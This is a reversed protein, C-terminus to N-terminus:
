CNVRAFRQKIQGGGAAPRSRVGSCGAGPGIGIRFSFFCGHEDFIPIEPDGHGGAKGFGAFFGARQRPASTFLRELQPDGGGWMEWAAHQTALNTVALGLEAREPISEHRAAELLMEAAGLKNEKILQTGEDVLSPTGKGARQLVDAPVARLYAPVLWGCFLAALSLVACLFVLIWSWRRTM